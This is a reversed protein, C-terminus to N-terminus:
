AQPEPTRKEVVDYELMGHCDPVDDPLGPPTHGGRYFRQHDIIRTWGCDRCTMRNIDRPDLPKQM